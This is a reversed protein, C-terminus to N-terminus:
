IYLANKEMKRTFLTRIHVIAVNQLVKWMSKWMLIEKEVDKGYGTSIAHGIHPYRMSFRENECGNEEYAM